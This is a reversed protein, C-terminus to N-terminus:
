QAGGREGGGPVKGLQRERARPLLKRNELGAPWLRPPTPPASPPTHTPGSPWALRPGRRAYQYACGDRDRVFRWGKGRVGRGGLVRRAETEVREMHILRSGLVACGEFSSTRRRTPSLIGTNPSCRSNARTTSFGTEPRGRSERTAARSWTCSSRTARSPPPHNSRADPPLTPRAPARCCPSGTFFVGSPLTLHPHLSLALSARRVIM